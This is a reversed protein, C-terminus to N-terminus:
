KSIIQGTAFDYFYRVEGTNHHGASNPDPYYYLVTNLSFDYLYPFPFTPSTYFFTSSRFDYLYVGNTGDAADFVYEFGLDFHYIYHRDSLLSYYGFPNGSAFDLYYVGGGLPVAGNFFSSPPAPSFALAVPRDVNSAFTTGVGDPTFIEVTDIGLNGVYLNGLADFALADPFSLNTSAFLSGTGDAAFKEITSNGDNAVYLNGAPDFALGYPQSLRPAYFLSRTGDLAVKAITSDASTGYLNGAADLALGTYSLSTDPVTSATGDPTIRQLLAGSAVYLNGAADITMASADAAQTAAFLTGLGNPTYREIVIQDGYEGETYLNGAADFAM